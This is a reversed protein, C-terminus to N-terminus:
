AREEEDLISEINRSGHLVRVIDIGTETPQYFILYKRFAGSVPFRRLGELQGVRTEFVKGSLPQEALLRCTALVADYYQVATEENAQDELYLMQERVDRRAAPRFTGSPNM